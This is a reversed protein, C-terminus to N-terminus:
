YGKFDKDYGIAKITKRQWLSIIKLFTAFITYIKYFYCKEQM